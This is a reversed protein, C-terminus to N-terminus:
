RSVELQRRWREADPRYSNVQNQLSTNERQLTNIQNQLTTIQSAQSRNKQTLDDIQKQQNTRNQTSSSVQGKMDDLQKQLSNNRTTLAKVEDQLSEIRTNDPVQAQLTHRKQYFSVGALILAGIFLALAASFM